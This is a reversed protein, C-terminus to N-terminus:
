ARGCAALRAEIESLREELEAQERIQMGLQLVAVAARLAVSDNSSKLLKRLVGAASVMDRSLIAVAQSVATDRM